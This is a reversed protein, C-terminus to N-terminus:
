GDVAEVLDKRGEVGDDGHVVETRLTRIGMLRDFVFTRSFTNRRRSPLAERYNKLGTTLDLCLRLGLNFDGCGARVAVIRCM